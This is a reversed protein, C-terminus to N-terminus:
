SQLKMSSKRCSQRLLDEMLLKIQHGAQYYLLRARSSTTTCIACLTHPMSLYCSAKADHSNDAAWYVTKRGCQVSFVGGETQEPAADGKSHDLLSVLSDDVRAVGIRPKYGRPLPRVTIRDLPIYDINNGSGSVPGYCLRDQLLWVQTPENAFSLRTSLQAM